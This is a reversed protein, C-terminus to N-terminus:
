RCMSYVFVQDAISVPRIGSCNFRAETQFDYSESAITASVTSEHSRPYVTPLVTDCQNWSYHIM